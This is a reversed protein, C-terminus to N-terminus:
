EGRLVRFGNYFDRDDQELLFRFDYRVYAQSDVWGGGRLVRRECPGAMRNGDPPAGPPALNWCTGTWEWANGLMDHLQFANPRYSGVPATYAHRDDCDHFKWTAATGPVGLKTSADGVNAYRCADVGDSSWPLAETNGARAAYEWEAETPLRYHKGTKRSLWETYASADSWSVCVVPDNDTQAFGPNRWDAFANTEYRAGNWAYCGANAPAMYGSDKVFLAFEARSVEYRGIAFVGPLEIPEQAQEPNWFLDSRQMSELVKPKPVIVVVMPCDACDRFVTGAALQRLDNQPSAQTKPHSAAPNPSQALSHSLCLGFILAALVGRLHAATVAPRPCLVKWNTHHGITHM